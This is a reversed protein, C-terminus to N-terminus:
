PAAEGRLCAGWAEAIRDPHYRRASARAAVSMRELRGQDEALARLRAAFGDIDDEDVLFGDVGDTIIGMPGVHRSAIPVVGAAQAEIIVMGFLEEWRTTRQSPVLLVDNNVLMSALHRYNAIFGHERVPYRRAMAGVEDELEGEGFINVQVTGDDLRDLIAPWLRLGKKVSLEGVQAVRLPGFPTRAVSREAEFFARHAAHPIIRVRLGPLRAKMAAAVVENVAVVEAKPRTLARQWHRFLWDNLPGYQRPVQHNQWYPWSAYYILRNRASLRGYWLMRFDLPGMGLVVTADKIRPVALRFKWNKLFFRLAGKPWRRLRVLRRLLEREIMTEVFTLEIQERKALEELINFYKWGNTEHAVILKRDTCADPMKESLSPPASPRHALATSM